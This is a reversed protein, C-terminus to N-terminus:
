QRPVVLQQVYHFIDSPSVQRVSLSVWQGFPPLTFCGTSHSKKEKYNSERKYLPTTGAIHSFVTHPYVTQLRPEFLRISGVLAYCRGVRDRSIRRSYLQKCAGGVIQEVLHGNETSSTVARCDVEVYVGYIILQHLRLGHPEIWQPKCHQKHFLYYAGPVFHSPVFSPFFGDVVISETGRKFSEEIGREGTSPGQVELVRAKNESYM